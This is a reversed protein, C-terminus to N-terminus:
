WVHAPASLNPFIKTKRTGSPVSSVLAEEEDDEEEEEEDDDDAAAVVSCINHSVFGSWPLYKYKKEKEKKKRKM